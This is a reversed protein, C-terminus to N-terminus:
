FYKQVHLRVVKLQMLVEMESDSIEGVCFSAYHFCNSLLLNYM